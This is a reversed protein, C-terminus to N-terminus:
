RPTLAVNDLRVTGGAVVAKIETIRAPKPRLGALDATWPSWAGPGEGATVDLTATRSRGGTDLYSLLVQIRSEGSTVKYDLSLTAGEGLEVGVAQTTHGGASGAKIELV